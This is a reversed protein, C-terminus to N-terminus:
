DLWSGAALAPAPSGPKIKRATTKGIPPWLPLFFAQAPPMTQSCGFKTRPAPLLDLGLMAEQVDIPKFISDSGDMGETWGSVPMASSAAGM